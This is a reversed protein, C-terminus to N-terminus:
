AVVLDSLRGPKNCKEDNAKLKQRALLIRATEKALDEDSTKCLRVASNPTTSSLLPSKQSEFLPPLLAEENSKVMSM